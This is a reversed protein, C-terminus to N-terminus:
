KEEMFMNHLLEEGDTVKNSVDLQRGLTYNLERASQLNKNTTEVTQRLTANETRFSDREATLDSITQANGEEALLFASQEEDSLNLFDERTM